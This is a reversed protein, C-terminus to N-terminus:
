SVSHGSKVTTDSSSKTGTAIAELDVTLEELVPATWPARTETNVDHQSM